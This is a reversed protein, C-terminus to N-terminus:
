PGARNPPARLQTGDPLTIDLVRGPQLRLRWHDEHVRTHHHVCLPVLNALDTPGGHEWEHIHHIKTRDFRVACGPVACTAYLARLARRQHSNALRQRRGLNLEGSSRVVEGNRVVVPHVTARQSIERLAAVPLEADLGVDVCVAGDADAHLVMVLEPAGSRGSGNTLLDVTALAQLHQQKALPDSPCTAPAREAFLRNVAGDLVRQLTAGTVPDFSGNMRWMGSERDVWTSLRAQRRQHELRDMGDDAALRRAEARVRKAWEEPTQQSAVGVLGEVRGVLASRMAPEVQRLVRAVADVHEGAVKGDNVAAALLPTHEATAAREVLRGAQGLSVHGGKAVADEPFSAVRALGRTVRMQQSQVWASLRRVRDAAADLEARSGAAEDVGVVLDVLEHIAAVEM